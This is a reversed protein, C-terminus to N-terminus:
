ELMKRAVSTLDMLDISGDGNIDAHKVQEWDPSTSTKGYHKAIIGLDGISVKGDGNVDESNGKVEPTIAIELAALGVSTESGLADGLEAATIAVNGKTAVSVEKAKFSLDLVKADGTVANGPGASALILRITGPSSHQTELLQVGDKVAAASVFEFREADYSLRIDQAYVSQTVSKLGVAVTFAKGSAISTPGSLDITPLAEEEDYPLYEFADIMGITNSAANNKTGKVVVKITHTGKPLDERQFLVQQKLTAPGYGDIDEAALEGDIYVDIRGHNAQRASILKIATGAFTFEAYSGATSSFSETGKYDNADNYPGWTGSYVVSPDRDDVKIPLIPPKVHSTIKYQEGAETGFTLIDGNMTYNVSQNDEARVIDFSGQQAFQKYKVKAENGQKSTIVAEKLVTGNWKMDVEFGGRAVLGKVSGAGWAAPMAPMLDITGTHSQLLMEAIGSTAGFNGDIQFPPHTDFLNQLTSGKLQEGLLKHARDGDLLRAWLNIKNAKSWGTGGDGRANLTVKAAAFLDPTDVKNILTGPYLGILHSIHRHQDNPNDIDNKWEQVQGWSGVKPLWLKSRKAITESRLEEDLGLIESAEIFQTFLGWILEQDYSVGIAVDGQEPSYSPSSVLSGDSDEVLYKLWFQTTEKIIDYVKGELLNVDGSFAYQDWAQQVMFANAAPSWGWYFDSGPATYGFPNNVTHIAWGAGEIGHQRQATVRGPERLSDIYDIYPIDTEALNVVESPWYNMQVNINTHYDSNWPPNNVQNWVGQLNAPLSGERSSAILLYRGYQFFLAELSRKESETANTKYKNLLEDTSMEVTGGGLDLSVRDFLEKYDALHSSRLQDFTKAAAANMNAEVKAKPTVSSKYTPFDNAYDTAATLLITVANVEKVSLKGGVATVTGGENKVKLQAEYGMKNSPVFGKLVLADNGSAAVSHAPQAGTVRVDFSFPRNGETTLRMVMVKDPYSLFYERKYQVDNQKYSVTATADKIDLARVYDTANKPAEEADGMQLESLQMQTGGKSVLDFKYYVYAQSNAFTYTKKQKRSAFEENTRTDLVTWQVGDNSGKLTWDKPDRNAVDNASTFSYGAIVKAESYQWQIWFPPQGDGSYWKTDVSGDTLKEIGEGYAPNSSSATVTYTEQKNFDLFVDGFAQYAGFSSDNPGMIGTIRNVLAKAENIKGEKLLTRITEVHTQAGDKIGYQYNPDAGPGGSWLTKENFQIREQDVGGFVMGGMHGNGIPLAQTEWSTAPQRYWLTLDNEAQAAQEAQGAADASVRSVLGTSSPVIYSAIMTYAMLVSLILATKSALKNAGMNM